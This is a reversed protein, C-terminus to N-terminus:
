TADKWKWPMDGKTNTEKLVGDTCQSCALATFMPIRGEEAPCISSMSNEFMSMTYWHAGKLRSASKKVFIRGSDM